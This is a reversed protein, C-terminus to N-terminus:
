KYPPPPLFPLKYIIHFVLYVSLEIATERAGALGITDHACGCVSAHQTHRLRTPSLDVADVTAILQSRLHATLQAAAEGLQHGRFTLRRTGM